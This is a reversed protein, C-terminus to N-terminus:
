EKFMALFDEIKQIETKLKQTEPTDPLGKYKELMKKQAQFIKEFNKVQQPGGAAMFIEQFGVVLQKAVVHGQKAARHFWIMGQQSDEKVGTGQFYFLGLRAQSDPNGHEAAKTAWHFAQEYNKPFGREGLYISGLRDQADINGHEASRIHWQLAQQIDEPTDRGEYKLGLLFEAVPLGQEAARRCWEFSESQSAEVGKGLNYFESLKLQAHANGREAAEKSYRFAARNNFEIDEANAEKDIMKASLVFFLGAPNDASSAIDAIIGDLIADHKAYPNKEITETAPAPEAPKEATASTPEPAGPEDENPEIAVTDPQPESDNTIPEPVPEPQPEIAIPDSEPEPEPNAAHLPEDQQPPVIIPPSEVTIPTTQEAPEEQISNTNSLVTTAASQVKQLSPSPPLVSLGTFFNAFKSLGTNHEPRYFYYISGAREPTTENPYIGQYINTVFEAYDKPYQSGKPILGVKKALLTILRIDATQGCKEITYLTQIKVLEKNTWDCFKLFGKFKQFYYSAFNTSVITGSNKDVMLYKARLLHVVNDQSFYPVPSTTPM